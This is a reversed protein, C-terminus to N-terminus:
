TAVKPITAFSFMGRPSLQQPSLSRELQCANSQPPLDSLTAGEMADLAAAANEEFKLVESPCVMTLNLWNVDGPGTLCLAQRMAHPM